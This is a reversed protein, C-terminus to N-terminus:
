TPFVVGATSGGDKREWFATSVASSIIWQASLLFVCSLLILFVLTSWPLGSANRTVQQSSLYGEVAALCQFVKTRGEAARRQQECHTRLRKKLLSAHVPSRRNSERGARRRGLGQVSDNSERGSLDSEDSDSLFGSEGNFPKMKHVSARNSSVSLCPSGPKTLKSQQRHTPLPSKRGYGSM